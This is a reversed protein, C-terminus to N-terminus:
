AHLPDGVINLREEYTTPNPVPDPVPYLYQDLDPPPCAFTRDGSAGNGHVCNYINKLLACFLLDRIASDSNGALKKGDRHICSKIQGKEAGYLGM